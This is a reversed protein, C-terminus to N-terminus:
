AVGGGFALVIAINMTSVMGIPRETRPDVVVLHHVEADRMIRAAIALPQDPRVTLAPTAALTGATADVGDAAAGILDLDSVIGWILREGTPDDVVVAHVHHTAMMAAVEAMTADPPCSLVGYHMAQGVTARTFGPRPM